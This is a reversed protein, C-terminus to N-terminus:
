LSLLPKGSERQVSILFCIKQRVKLQRAKVLQLIIFINKGSQETRVAEKKVLRGLLTKITAPKWDMTQGLIAIIEQATTSGQTWIVRMVEWESDSIKIPTVTMTM